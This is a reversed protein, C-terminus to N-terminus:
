RASTVTRVMKDMLELYSRTGAAGVMTPVVLLRAGAKKAFLKSLNQPYFSEQLVLKVGQGRVRAILEAIHRPSPEIGPKPELEGASVYGAWGLFYSWSRHFVVVKTGRHPRLLSEWQKMRASLEAKFAKAGAEYAAANEPDILGLRAAIGDAILLVNRPDTWYHPNGGPHIDGEARDPSGRPVEVAEVFTSCDLYGVAGPGINRNRAGSVLPPLWGVELQLGAHILLDARNLKVMMSPKAEVFHPDQTGKVLSIVDVRDGGIRAALDGFDPITAVVRLGAFAPQALVLAAALAVMTLGTKTSM